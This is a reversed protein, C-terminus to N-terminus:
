KGLYYSWLTQPYDKRNKLKRLISNMETTNGAAREQQLHEHLHLTKSSLLLPSFVTTKERKGRLTIRDVEILDCRGSALATAKSVSIPLGTKKSFPELRAALNVADGICSYNFRFSSGLNGVLTKGTAIGIGIQIEPFQDLDDTETKISRNITPLAEELAIAARIACAAHDERAIPANWFAMLSDGIYKDLTGGHELIIATAQDMIFNVVSTLRQPNEALKESLNTFGRIDMFLVTLEMTRGGLSVASGSSDIERVMAPSLYQSFALKLKRRRSEEFGARASIAIVSLGLMLGLTFYINGILGIRIFAETYFVAASVACGSLLSISWIFPLRLMLLALIYSIMGALMIELSKIAPGSYLTRGSLIQHLVQLHLYPGPLVPELSTSHVDKLGAATSGIVVFSGSITEAWDTNDTKGLISVGSIRPFRSNYGHHLLLHGDTDTTIIHDATKIQTLARGTKRDQKMVHSKGKDALRLMELSFSPIIRDKIRAIMPMRRVTKDAHLGLSVFGAGPSTALAEVPTLAGSASLISPSPFGISTIPVPAHIPRSTEMELLSTAQVAPIRSLVQGLLTDGDPLIAALMTESTNSLRAINAPSFRDEETMLIDIGIVLPGARDIRDLMEAMVARPWPWQGLESISTEDIDILVLKQAIEDNGEFPYLRNLLDHSANQTRTTFGGTNSVGALM